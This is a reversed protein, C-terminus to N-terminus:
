VPVPLAGVLLGDDDVVPISAGVFGPALVMAHEVTATMSVSVPAEMLAQVPVGPDAVELASRRVIGILEARDVVALVPEKHLRLIDVAERYPGVFVPDDMVQFVKDAQARVIVAGVAAESRLRAGAGLFTRQLWGGGSAGLVLLSRPPLQSVLEAADSAQTIRYEIGPEADHLRDVAQVARARDDDEDYASAVMGDVEIREALRRAVRVALLSHPGGAAAAVVAEVDELRLDVPAANAVLQFSPSTRRSVLLEARHRICADHVDGVVRIPEVESLVEALEACGEGRTWLVPRSVASEARDTVRMAAPGYDSDAVTRRSDRAATSHPGHAYRNRLLDVGGLSADADGGLHSGPQNALAM